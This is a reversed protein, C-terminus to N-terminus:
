LWKTIKIRLMKSNEQPILRHWFNKQISLKIGKTLSIPLENDWQFKWDGILNLIEVTRNELDKHWKYDKFNNQFNFERIIVNESIEIDIFCKM